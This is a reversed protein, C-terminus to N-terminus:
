PNDNARGKLEFAIKCIEYLESDIMIIGYENLIHEFLPYYYPTVNNNDM